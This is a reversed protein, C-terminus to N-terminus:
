RKILMSLITTAVILLMSVQLSMAAAETTTTDTAAITPGVTSITTGVTSITPGVTTIQGSSIITIRWEVAPHVPSKKRLYEIFVNADTEQLDQTQKAGFIDGYGDAGSALTSQMIVNYEKTMELPLLEPVQCQACLVKVDVVRQGVARNFDYVVQLGSMQLFVSNDSDYNSVSHELLSMLEDGNLTVRHLNDFQSGFVTGAESRTIEGNTNLSAKISSGQIIAISADTWDSGTYQLANWDVMADAIFNGLNCESQRCNHDLLVRTSGIVDETPDLQPKITIRWEVAPHVPSKKKLYELFANIDSQGLDILTKSGIVAGFGDVGAATVSQMIVKYERNNVLPQMEPVSCLACLVKVDVVRQGKIKNLDYVVQLGSMQLFEVNNTVHNSIAHELLKKLEAGTLTVLNLNSFAPLFIREANAKTITGTSSISAKIRSGQMVAISADTWFGDTSEYQLAHWDVMSDTIFNGLNCEDLRCNGDLLVRTSGVTDLPDLQANITIRWEVSPHIPSKKKLYELFVEIDLTAYKRISKGEFMTFGDGGDALFDQMIVKYLKSPEINELTPVQCLACLVKAEVVRKGTPQNMDYVVQVGSMQLFEGRQEGDTYRHVSHELAALLDAGTMELLEMKSDFPMVTAADEKTIQGDNAKHDISARIGGGQLFAISADTWYDASEYSLAYWDVFADTLFNGLNCEHRRCAGDLFVRSSGVIMTELELIAPRYVELLRLVDDDRIVTGDLLIPKGNIQLLDGADDFELELYGLYKTFAYAQVVPVKKNSPQTVTVPYDAEPKEWDPAEGSYLFTHASLIASNYNRFGFFNRFECHGGIVLDIEPCQAAIQKDRDLGSHGLAIIISIGEAKLRAAESSFNHM